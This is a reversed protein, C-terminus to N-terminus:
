VVLCLMCVEKTIPMGDLDREYVCMCVYVCVCVCVEKTIPMGDLDREDDSDDRGFTNPGQTSMIMAM